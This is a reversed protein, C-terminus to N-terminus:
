INLCHSVDANNKPIKLPTIDNLVLVFVFFNDNFFCVVDSLYIWLEKLGLAIFNSRLETILFNLKSSKHEVSCSNSSSSFNLNDSPM